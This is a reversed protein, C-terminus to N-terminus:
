EEKLYIKIKDATVSIFNVLRSYLEQKHENYYDDDWLCIVKEEAPDETWDMIYITHITWQHVLHNMMWYLNVEIKKQM